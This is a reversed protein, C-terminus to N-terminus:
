GEFQAFQSLSTKPLPPSLSFFKALLQPPKEQPPKKNEARARVNKEGREEAKHLLM